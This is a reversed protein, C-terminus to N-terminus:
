YSPEPQSSHSHRDAKDAYFGRTECDVRAFKAEKLTSYVYNEEFAISTGTLPLICLALKFPEQSFTVGIGEASLLFMEPALSIETSRVVPFLGPATVLSWLLTACDTHSWPM